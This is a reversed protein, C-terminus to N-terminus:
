PLILEEIDYRRFEDALTTHSAQPEDAILTPKPQFFKELMSTVIFATLALLTKMRNGKELIHVIVNFNHIVRKPTNM